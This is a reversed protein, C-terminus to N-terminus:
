ILGSPLLFRPNARKTESCMHNSQKVGKGEGERSAEKLRWEKCTWCICLGWFPGRQGWSLLSHGACTGLILWSFFGESAPNLNGWLPFRIPKPPCMLWQYSEPWRVTLSSRAGMDVGPELVQSSSAPGWPGGWGALGHSSLCKGPFPTPALLSGRHRIGLSLAIFWTLPKREM